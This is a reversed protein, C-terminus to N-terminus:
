RPLTAALEDALAKATGEFSPFNGLTGRDRRLKAATWLPAGSRSDILHIEASMLTTPAEGPKHDPFRDVFQQYLTVSGVLIGDVELGRGLLRAIEPSARGSEDVEAVFRGILGNEYLPAIANTVTEPPIIRFVARQTLAEVIAKGVVIAAEAEDTRNVIPLIAVTKVIGVGESEGPQERVELGQKKEACGILLIVALIAAIGLPGQAM